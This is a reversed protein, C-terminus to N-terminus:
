RSPDYGDQTYLHGMSAIARLEDVTQYISEQTIGM